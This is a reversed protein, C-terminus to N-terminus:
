RLEVVGANGDVTVIQGDRLRATADGTAVVAPIGFERAVLSAHAAVSGGDTVVATARTFLPTWAPLTARAVLVDGSQLRGLEDAGRIIRAPGTARGPSAPQGRLHDASEVPPGSRLGEIQDRYLRRTTASWSGLMLPALLRRQQEWTARRERARVALAAAKGDAGLAATLEDRTLFFVQEADSLVGGRALIEGLRLVTRRLLPWGLTLEAAQRERVPVYRQAVSLLRDFRHLLRPKGSLLDRCRRTQHEREGVLALFRVSAAPAQLRGEQEGVTPFYWDLSDVAHAPLAAPPEYLGQLLTQHSGGLRPQLNHRYFGALPAEAKWAFGGTVTQDYFYEGAAAAVRDVLACLETADATALRAEGEQVVSRYAPLTATEWRRVAPDIGHRAGFDGFLATAPGAALLLAPRHLLMSLLLRPGLDPFRGFYWGNVQRHHPPRYVVGLDKKAAAALANEMATLPWEAFLPTVPDHLWEGFRFYRTWLGPGPASWAMPAPLATMPRAQLVAIAGGTMAWEVDQPTKFTAAIERAMRAIRQATAADLVELEAGHTREATEVGVTWEEADASGSVLREGLGHVSSVIAVEPDGTLPNATFAVGAADAAVMRQVLVAMGGAEEGRSLQYARVRAAFASAWCRRIAASVATVGCVDLVSEYQGAFSSDALDEAVSSSRVAVAGAGLAALATDIAAVLDDPFTLREVANQPTDAPLEHLAACREFAATTVVFGDPVPFGGRKLVALTRAKGGILTAPLEAALSLPTVLTSAEVGPLDTTAM